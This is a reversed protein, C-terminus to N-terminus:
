AERIAGSVSPGGQVHTGLPTQPSLQEARSYVFCMASCVRSPRRPRQTFSMAVVSNQALRIGTAFPSGLSASPQAEAEPSVGAPPAPVPQAEAEPSVGPLRPHLHPSEAMHAGALPMWAEPGQLFIGM